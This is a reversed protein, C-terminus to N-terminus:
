KSHEKLFQALYKSFEEAGKKSLHDVDKWNDLNNNGNYFDSFDYYTIGKSDMFLKMAGNDKKCQDKYIPATFVILEKNNRKCFLIIDNIYKESLKSIQYRNQCEFDNAEKALKKLFIAKQSKNNKIPDYGDYKKYDYKPRVFNSALALVLGNYDLSWLFTSFYNNRGANDIQTKIIDNQHYKVALADLDEANYQNDFINKTDLQLVVTQKKRKPLTQILTASFATKRGNVGINFSSYSFYKPNIHHNTRSNGFFIIETTDKVKFFHNLKGVGEGVLVRKDMQLLGFFVIKDIVLVSLLVILFLKLSKM